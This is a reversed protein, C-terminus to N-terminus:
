GNTAPRDFEPFYISAEGGSGYGSASLLMESGNAYRKGFTVRGRYTDLTGSEVGVELGNVKRGRRTVVNIVASFANAGYMASGPGRIVELRDILDIDVPFETGALVSDFVNDNIRHGDVLVLMRSNYDGPVVLGRTAFYSYNRDDTVHFGQVSALVDILTRHGYTRIDAATVITISAPAESIKQLYRSAGSVTDVEVRMLQELDLGALDPQQAAVSGPLLAFWSLVGIVALRVTHPIRPIM